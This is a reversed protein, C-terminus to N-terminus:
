LLGAATLAAALAAADTFQVAQLGAAQAGEVNALLDDVMLCREPPVGLRAAVTTFAAAEPKCVGIDASGVVTDFHDALGAARLDEVLRSSANSLLAVPAREHVRDVLALVEADVEWRTEAFAKAVADAAVGHEAAVAEGLASCWDEFSTQGTMAPGLRVPDFAAAGIAGAPLGLDAEAQALSGEDWQRIVGDLDIVLAEVEVGVETQAPEPATLDPEGRVDAAVASLVGNVFRPSDDTGFRRALVVAENIIVAQSRDPRDLLEYTGLRLVARDVAALRKLTWRPAVRETLIADIREAHGDVGRVLEVALEAPAVPLGALVDDVSSGKIEVEYLLELARERASRREEVETTELENV